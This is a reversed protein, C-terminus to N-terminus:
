CKLMENINWGQESECLVPFAELDLVPQSVHPDLVNEQPCHLAHLHAALGGRQHLLPDHGTLGSLDLDSGRAASDGDDLHAVLVVEVDRGGPGAEDDVGEDGLHSWSLMLRLLM